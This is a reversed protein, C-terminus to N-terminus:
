STHDQIIVWQNDHKKWLLTYHGSLTDDTRFLEWKGVVLYSNGESFIKFNTFQLQGMAAKDPYSKKYNNLTQQWGFTIGSKGIFLLSDSKWYSQMFSDIDGQNWAIQQNQMIKQIEAEDISTTSNCGFSLFSVVLVICLSTCYITKIKSMLVAFIIDASM